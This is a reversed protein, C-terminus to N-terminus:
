FFYRLSSSVVHATYDNNGGSTQDRNTFFGYRLSWQIRKNFRHILTGAVGHEQAGAGYPQSFASNDVYNDARYYSYQAQFDTKETLVIGALVSANWYNNRANLVLNTGPTARHAPTETRDIVCSVNGQLFLRSFPVWSISESFIQATSEASQVEGLFDARTDITSIQFDYRSILTLNVLPRWTVRFNVDHTKFDQRKFFAPYRDGLPPTNTTSDVSHDYDNERSKYYYQGGLNFRRHPYWNAGVVYKQTFRTSDTDRSVLGTQAETEREELDGEGELWEARAYFAWNTLGTYRVELGESVDTLGRERTNELAVQIAPRAAGGGFDTELYSAFGDQDQHEVRVSPVITVHEWPRLMFNFNVVHQKLQAGGALHLFGEDRQQRRAFLPDYVPDYDSGYIRSGSIDTDMTTFSYGMTFLVKETFRTESFAHASFLDSDVGEKQTLYRDPSSGGTGGTTEGPRRRINRSNDNHSFESRMGIGFDTRGLTHKADVEIIDRKEDILLFSPVIGRVNNPAAVGTVVADGWSTSDKTGDRFQHTYKIRFEPWDPLTLGGEIWAEGRDLEFDENYLSIWQDNRPFFGGSGDYWTRYERYGARVYGKDPHSINLRIGYDHTDYIGRGDITFLGRKGVDQEYHFDEVGGFGGRPLSHRRQFAPKDGDVFTSGGGIELWNRYETPEETKPESAAKEEPKAKITEDVAFVSECHVVALM